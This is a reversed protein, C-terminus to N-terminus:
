DNKSERGKMTEKATPPRNGVGKVTSAMSVKQSFKSLELTRKATETNASSLRIDM